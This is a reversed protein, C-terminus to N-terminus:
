GSAVRKPWRGLVLNDRHIVEDFDKYGLIHEIQSSQQGKIQEIESASYNVLGRAFQNGREDLVRVLDGSSFSGSVGTIGAALLSKGGDRIKEKAGDNVIVNGRPAAGFAIWRKRSGLREAVPLFKTGIEKGAIIDPLVGVRRGDAIVMTVGSNVAVEAAEIKTRMGGTGSLGRTGGALERISATIKGVVPIVAASECKEPDADCLGPVDSLIILWGAQLSSAVLAALNDNDGVRIEDVAVTDNENVIPVAKHRLLTLMTNRANLYRKRHGFDERTLLVQGVTIGRSAFFDAYMQMLLGQGIAAAAQQEPITRPRVKLGLREMGARISGSTVLVVECGKSRLDAIQNTLSALYTRDLCGSSDTLTSSGVKIVIRKARRPM